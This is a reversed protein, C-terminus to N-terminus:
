LVWGEVHVAGGGLYRSVRCVGGHVAGGGLYRSVRCVGGHVSAWGWPISECSGGRWM